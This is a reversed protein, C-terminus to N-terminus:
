GKEASYQWLARDLTRMDVKYTAALKRCAEVYQWWFDFTYSSPQKVGLSELARFDLIPYPDRQGFHLLVSATPWSVGNLVILTGIRLEEARAGLAINTAEAILEESLEEYRRRARLSKWRCLAVFGDRTYFGRKRVGASIERVIRQEEQREGLTQEVTYRAALRHILAPKFQLKFTPTTM